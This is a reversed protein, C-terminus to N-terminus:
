EFGWDSTYLDGLGSGTDSAVAGGTDYTSAYFDSYANGSNDYGAEPVGNGDWPSSTVPQETPLPIGMGPDYNPRQQINALPDFAPQSASQRSPSSGGSGSGGGGKSGSLSKLLNSFASLAGTALQLNGNSGSVGSGSTRAGSNVGSLPSGYTPANQKTTSGKRSLFILAVLAIIPLLFKETM